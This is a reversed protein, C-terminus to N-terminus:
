CKRWGARRGRSRPLTILGVLRAIEELKALETLEASLEARAKRTSHGHITKAEACRALGEQTRPGTSRGGHTRCVQKGSLAPAGCQQKTRKSTAQCRRCVINGGALVLLDSNNLLPRSPTM